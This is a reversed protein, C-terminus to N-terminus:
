ATASKLWNVFDTITNDLSYKPEWGTDQKLRSYDGFINMIENPRLRTQDVEVNIDKPTISFEKLLLELIEEGARSKGSCINYVTSKLKGTEAMALDAYARVIDRVDTYDRRTKLNGVRISTNDAIAQQIQQALDPILFGPLQGPGTHNFPRAVLCELGDQRYAQLSKEMLQKSVVYPNTATEPALKSEETLPMSQLPDYVAGSSIAIIRPKAGVNLVYDYLTTHVKVNIDTYAQPNAFSAGVNALGALNIIASIDQVPLKKVATRDTLDCAHYTELLESIARAPKEEQGIGSVTAERSKLERVLHQGM